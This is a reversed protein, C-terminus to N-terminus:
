SSTAGAALETARKAHEHAMREDGLGLYAQELLQHVEVSGPRNRLSEILDALADKYNKM